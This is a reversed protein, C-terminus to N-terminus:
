KSKSFDKNHTENQNMKIAKDEFESVKGEITDLRSNIGNLKNSLEPIIKIETSNLKPRRHRYSDKMYTCVHEVHGKAEKHFM